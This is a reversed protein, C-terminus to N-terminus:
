EQNKRVFCLMDIKSFLKLFHKISGHLLLEVTENVTVDQM